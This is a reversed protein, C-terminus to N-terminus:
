LSIGILPSEDNKGMKKAMNAMYKSTFGEGFHKAMFDVLENIRTNEDKQCKNFKEMDIRQAFSLSRYFDIIKKLESITRRFAITRVNNCLTIGDIYTDPMFGEPSNFARHLPSYKFYRKFGKNSEAADFIMRVRTNLSEMLNESMGQKVGKIHHCDEREGKKFKWKPCSCAFDGNEKMSVTYESDGSGSKVKWRRIWM